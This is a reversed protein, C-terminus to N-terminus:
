RDSLQVDLQLFVEKGSIPVHYEKYVNTITEEDNIHCPLYLRDDFYEWTIDKFREHLKQKEEDFYITCNVHDKSEIYDLYCTVPCARGDDDMYELYLFYEEAKEIQEYLDKTIVKEYRDACCGCSGEFDINAKYVANCTAVYADEFEVYMHIRNALFDSVDIKTMDEKNTVVVEKRNGHLRLFRVYEPLSVSLCSVIENSSDSTFTKSFSHITGSMYANIDIPSCLISKNYLITDCM